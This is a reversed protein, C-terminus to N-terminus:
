TVVVLVKYGCKFYKAWNQVSTDICVHKDALCDFKVQEYKANTNSLKVYTPPIVAQDASVLM